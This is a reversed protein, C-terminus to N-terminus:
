LLLKALVFVFRQNIFYNMISVVQLHITALPPYNTSSMECRAICRICIKKKLTGVFVNIALQSLCLKQLLPYNKDGGKTLLVIDALRMM